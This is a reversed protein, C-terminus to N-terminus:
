GSSNNEKLLTDKMLSPLYVTVAFRTDRLNRASLRPTRRTLLCAAPGTGHGTDGGQREHLAADAHDHGAHGHVGAPQPPQVPARVPARHAPLGDLQRARLAAGAPVGHVRPPGLVRRARDRQRGAVGGHHAGRPRAQRRAQRLPSGRAGHPRPAAGGHAAHLPVRPHVARPQHPAAAARHHVGRPGPQARGAVRHLRQARM